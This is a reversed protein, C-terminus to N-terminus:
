DHNAPSPAQHPPLTDDWMWSEPFQLVNDETLRFEFPSEEDEMKPRFGSGYLFDEFNEKLTDIHDAQFEMTVEPDGASGVKTFIFHPM